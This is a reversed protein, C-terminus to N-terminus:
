GAYSLYLLKHNQLHNNPNTGIKQYGAANSNADGTAVNPEPNPLMKFLFHGSIRLTFPDCQKSEQSRGLQILNETSCSLNM